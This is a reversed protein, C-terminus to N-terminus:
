PSLRILVPYSKNTFNGGHKEGGIEGDGQGIERGKRM